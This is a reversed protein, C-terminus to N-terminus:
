GGLSWGFTAALGERGAPTVEVARRRSGREIWGLGLLRATMAAGLAGNLHPKRETGTWAPASSAAAAESWRV